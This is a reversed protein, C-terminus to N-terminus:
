GDKQREGLTMRHNINNIPNDKIYMSRGETQNPDKKISNLFSPQSIMGFVSKRPNKLNIKNKGDVTGFGPQPKSDNMLRKKREFKDEFGFSLNEHSKNVSISREKEAL